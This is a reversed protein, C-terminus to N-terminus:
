AMYAQEPNPEIVPEKKLPRDERLKAFGELRAERTLYGVFCLGCVIIFVGIALIILVWYPFEDISSPVFSNDIRGTAADAAEQSQPIVTVTANGFYDDEDSAGSSGSNIEKNRRILEEEIAGSSSGIADNMLSGFDGSTCERCEGNSRIFVDNYIRDDETEIRLRRGKHLSTLQQLYVTTATISVGDALPDLIDVITSEFIAIEEENMIRDVNELRIIVDASVVFPGMFTVDIGRNQDNFDGLFAQIEELTARHVLIEDTGAEIALSVSSEYVSCADNTSSECSEIKASIIELVEIPSNDGLLEILTTITFNELRALAESIDPEDLLADAYDVAIKYEFPVTAFSPEKDELQRAGLTVFLLSLLLLRM